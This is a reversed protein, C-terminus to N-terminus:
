GFLSQPPVPKPLLVSILNGLALFGFLLYLFLLGFAAVGASLQPGLALVVPVSGILTLLATVAAFVTSKALFIRRPAVPLALYALAGGRDFGFANNFVATLLALPFCLLVSLTLSSMGGPDLGYAFTIILATACIFRLRRARVFLLAERAVLAALSSRLGLSGARHWAQMFSTVDTAAGLESTRDIQTIHVKRGLWTALWLALATSLALGLLPATVATWGTSRFVEILLGPPTWRILPRVEWLPVGGGSLRALFAVLALGATAALVWRWGRRFRLEIISGVADAAANTCMVFVIVALWSVGQFVAPRDPGSSEVQILWAFLPIALLWWGALSWVLHCRYITEFRFPLHLYRRVPLGLALRLGLIGSIGIM